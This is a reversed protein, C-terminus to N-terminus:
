SNEKDKDHDTKKGTNGDGDKPNDEDLHSIDAGCM